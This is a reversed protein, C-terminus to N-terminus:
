RSSTGMRGIGFTFGGGGFPIASFGGGGGGYPPGGSMNNEATYNKGRKTVVVCTSSSSGPGHNIILNLKSTCETGSKNTTSSVSSPLVSKKSAKCERKSPREM